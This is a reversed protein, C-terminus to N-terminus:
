RLVRPFVVGDGTMPEALGPLVARFNNFPGFVQRMNASWGLNYVNRPVKGFPHMLARETFKSQFELTTLNSTVLYLHFGGLILVSISIACGIVWAFLTMHRGNLDLDVFYRSEVGMSTISIFIPWYTIVIFLCGVLLWMLFLLFYRYNYFGVCQNIWPCHHDMKLVCRNCMSCHHCRPPKYTMCKDCYRVKGERVLEDGEELDLKLQSPSETQPPAGPDVCCTKMHFYLINILILVGILTQGCLVPAPLSSLPVLYVFYSATIGGILSLALLILVSGLVRLSWELMILSKLLCAAFSRGAWSSFSRSAM